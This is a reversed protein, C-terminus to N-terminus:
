PIKKFPLSHYNVRWEVNGDDVAPGYLRHFRDFVLYAKLIGTNTARGSFRHYWSSGELTWIKYYGLVKSIM